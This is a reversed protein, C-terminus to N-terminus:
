SLGSISVNEIDNSVMSIMNMPTYNQSSPQVQNRIQAYADNTGDGMLWVQTAYSSSGDNLSFNFGANSTQWPLRFDNGVKYDALWGMPDIIMENIEAQTPMAVGCRLTTVVMSAVKGRFTRNAGRGGITMYGTFERNMRQGFSGSTWSAATSLNTDSGGVASWSNSSGMLRIDFCAAIEAATHGSGLRTGNHAIYIGYWNSPTLSWGTGTGSPHILCENIEGNRGWGFYLKRDTSRRLYINDDTTGSGEGLNWIHQNDNYTDTTFVVATAWPHGSTVTQGATPAAVQNSTGGMKLATRFYSSDVQQTREAGGSFDLAKSWSTDNTPAPPTPITIKSPDETTLADDLDITVGTSTGLTLTLPATLPEGSIAGCNLTRTFSGGEAVAPETNLSNVNCAILYLSGGYLEIGYDYVSTAGSNTFYSSQTVGGLEDFLTVGHSTTSAGHYWRICGAFDTYNVTSLTPSSELVGFMMTEGSALANPNLHADVWEKPLIVREGESLAFSLNATSDGQLVGATITGSGVSWDGTAIVPATLNNVTLTFTSSTSGFDNTRTVTIVYDDSPNAVNDGTVQPATGDIVGLNYVLGTPAGTVTTTYPADQPSVQYNVTAGENVTLDAITFASPAYLNDANTPIESYVIESTDAPRATGTMTSGTDPMHWTTFTPEDAYVHQHSTGSGGNQTDVYNAEEETAFLPYEFNGDPSEIFRYNLVPAATDVASRQPLEVMVNNGDWLKVVLFYEGAPTVTTSRATMIFENSRGEDYYWCTIYGNQDIGIKILVGDRLGPAGAGNLEDQVNNNYRM